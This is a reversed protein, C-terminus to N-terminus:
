NTSPISVRFSAIRVLVPSTGPSVAPSSLPSPPPLALPDSDLDAALQKIQLEKLRKIRQKESLGGFNPNQKQTSIAQSATQCNELSGDDKRKRSALQEAAAAALVSFSLLPPSPQIEM